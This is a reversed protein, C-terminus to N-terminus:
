EEGRPGVNSSHNNWCGASSDDYVVRRADDPGLSPTLDNVINKSESSLALYMREVPNVADNPGPAPREGAQIEAVQRTAEEVAARDKQSAIGWVISVCASEGVRDAVDTAGGLAQACLSRIVGWTRAYSAALAKAIIPGDQPPLGMKGLEKATFNFTSPDPCPTRSRVTGKEALKKWDDQSLDFDSKKAALGSDTLALKAEAEALRKELMTKETDLAELRQRYTSVSDALNQNATAWAQEDQSGSGAGTGSGRHVGTADARGSEGAALDVTAGARALAVKGEYVGVLVAASVAAGVAAAKADRRTMAGDEEVKVRFCTGKVTVDAGAAHVVFRAGPEVRWFVDGSAQTVAEGDWAVHAGKELVAVARGDVRVERRDEAVVDGRTPARHVRASFVAVAVAAAVVLVAATIRKGPSLRPGADRLVAGVVKSAFDAPPEQPEWAKWPDSDM